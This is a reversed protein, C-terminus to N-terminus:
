LSEQTLIIRNSQLDRRDTVSSRVTTDARSPLSKATLNTIITPTYESLAIAQMAPTWDLTGTPRERLLAIARESTSASLAVLLAYGLAQAALERTGETAIADYDAALKEPDCDQALQRVVDSQRLRRFLYTPTNAVLFIDIIENLWPIPLKM